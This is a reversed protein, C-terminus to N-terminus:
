AARKRKVKALPECASVRIELREKAEDRAKRVTMAVIASDNAYVSGQMADLAVKQFSDIDGRSNYAVIEVEVAEPMKWRAIIVAAIAHAKVREHYLRAESSKLAKGGVHRYVRNNLCPRGPVTFTLTM